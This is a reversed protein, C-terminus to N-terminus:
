NVSEARMESEQPIILTSVTIRIRRNTIEAHIIQRTVQQGQHVAEM